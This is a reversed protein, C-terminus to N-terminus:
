GADPPSPFPMPFPAPVRLKAEFVHFRPFCWVNETKADLDGEDSACVISTWPRWVHVDRGVELSLMKRGTSASYDNLRLLASVPGYPIDLTDSHLVTGRIFMVRPARPSKSSGVHEPSTYVVDTVRIQLEAKMSHGKKLVRALDAEWLLQGTNADSLHRSAQDALGGRCVRLCTLM